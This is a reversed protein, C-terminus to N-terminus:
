LNILMWEVLIYQCYDSAENVYIYYNNLNVLAIDIPNIYLRRIVYGLYSNVKLTTIKANNQRIM